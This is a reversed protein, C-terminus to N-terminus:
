GQQDAQDAADMARQLSGISRIWPKEFPPGLDSSAEIANAKTEYVGLLLVYYIKGNASVKAASMGRLGHTQAYTELADTSTLAILQVTWFDEPLDAIAIAERPRYALRIYKPLSSDM